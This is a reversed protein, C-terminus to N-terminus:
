LAFFVFAIYCAVLIAGELRDIRRRTLVIPVFLLSFLTMVIANKFFSPDPVVLDSTLAALGLVLFSNSINSGIINGIMLNGKKKLVATLSVSLEPLSTGIAVVTLGMFGQSLGLEAGLGTAGLVLIQASFVVIVASALIIVMERAEVGKKRGRGTLFSRLVSAGRETITEVYNMRVFYGFFDGFGYKKLTRRTKFVYASYALFLCLLLIGEVQTVVGNFLVLLVVAASILLMGSDRKVVQKNVPVVGVLAGLGLVLAINAINSGIINGLALGPNGYYAAMVSSAIEPLSTGVAVITLGIIFESVGLMKALRSASEIMWDASKYLLVIGCVVLALEWYM